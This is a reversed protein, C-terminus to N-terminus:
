RWAGLAGSATSLLDQSIDQAVVWPMATLVHSATDWVAFRGFTANSASLVLWHGDESWTVGLPHGNGTTAMGEVRTTSGDALSVVIVAGASPRGPTSSIDRYSLAISSGDPSFSKWITAPNSTGPIHVDRTTGQALDVMRLTCQRRCPSSVVWAVRDGQVVPQDDNETGLSRIVKRTQPDLLLLRGGISDPSAGLNQRVILGQSVEGVLLYRNDLPTVSVPATGNTYRSLQQGLHTSMVVLLSGSRGPVAYAGAPADATSGVETVDDGALERLQDSRDVWWVRRHGGDAINMVRAWPVAVPFVKDVPGACMVPRSVEGTGLDVRLLPTVTWVLVTVGAPGSGTPAAIRPWDARHLTMPASDVTDACSAPTRSPTTTPTPKAAAAPKPPASKTLEHVGLGAATAVGLLALLFWARRPLARPAVDPDGASELEDLVRGPHARGAPFDARTM